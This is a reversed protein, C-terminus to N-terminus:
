PQQQGQQQLYERMGPSLETAQVTKAPTKEPAKEPEAAQTNAALNKRMRALYEKSNEGQRNVPGSKKEEGFYADMAQQAEKGYQKMHDMNAAVDRIEEPILDAIMEATEQPSNETKIGREDISVSSGDKKIETKTVYGNFNDVISVPKGNKYSIKVSSKSSYAENDETEKQENKREHVFSTPKGENDFEMIDSSTELEENEVDKYTTKFGYRILNGKENLKSIIENKEEDDGISFAQNM